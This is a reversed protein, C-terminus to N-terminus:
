DRGSTPGPEWAQQPDGNFCGCAASLGGAYGGERTPIFNNLFAGESAGWFVTRKPTSGSSPPCTRRCSNTCLLSTRPM